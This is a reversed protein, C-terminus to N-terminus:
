AKTDFFSRVGASSPKVPTEGRGYTMYREPEDTVLRLTFDILSLSQEILQQNFQNIERIKEVLDQLEGGLRRLSEKEKHHPVLKILNALMMRGNPIGKQSLWQEVVQQRDQELGSIKRVLKTQKHLLKVLEDALDHVLAEKKQNELILLDDHAVKLEEMIRIIDQIPEM